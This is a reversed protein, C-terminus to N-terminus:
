TQVCGEEEGGEQRTEPCRRRRGHKEGSSKLQTINGKEKLWLFSAAWWGALV